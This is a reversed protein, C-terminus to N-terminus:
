VMAGEKMRPTAAASTSSVGGIIAAAALGVSGRVRNM